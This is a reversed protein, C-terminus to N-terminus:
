RTSGIREIASRESFNKIALSVPVPPKGSLIRVRDTWTTKGAYFRQIVDDTHEYFKQLVTYRLAPESAVFLLRNLLRYFRQRSLWSRRFKMLSERASQTTLEPAKTLFEAFRVADPLSFGTTAHFFGARMGLNVPEGANSTVISASTLPIPLVGREERDISKLKWGRREIYSKISRSIREENLEPTDSYFTEEVLVRTQDWPLMYFFRFGDLQPCTADMIVPATLGHPEELTVDYGIFKQYGNLGSVPTTSLGRADFVCLADISNGNEFLVTTDTIKTATAEFRIKDGLQEKLVKHFDESRISHFAGDLTRKVRPFDVNTSAWSRSILPKMLELAAPSIDSEFFSWTHNGGLTDTSEALIISRGPHALAMFYATLGGSLGGGIIALDVKENKGV